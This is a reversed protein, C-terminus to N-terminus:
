ASEECHHEVYDDIGDCRHALPPKKALNEHPLKKPKSGPHALDYAKQRDAVQKIRRGNDVAQKLINIAFCAQQGRMRIFQEAMDLYRQQGTAEFLRLLAIEIEEHGPTYRAGKGLFDEVIRDGAKCAIELLAEKGRERCDTVGAEILHGHCYLEHEIQLNTWREEPYHIQNFTYLYGDLDQSNGILEIFEDVLKELRHNSSISLINEAAEMWKYADSDAFYWGRRFESKGEALIRFNDICGSKELEDWQHFIATEASVDQWRKWFGSTIRSRVQKM